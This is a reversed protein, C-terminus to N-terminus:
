ESGRQRHISIVRRLDVEAERVTGVDARVFEVFHGRGDVDDLGFGGVGQAGDEDGAVRRAVGRGDEPTVEGFEVGGQDAECPGPFLCFVDALLVAHVKRRRLIDLRVLLVIQHIM